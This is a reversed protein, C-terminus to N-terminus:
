KKKKSASSTRGSKINKDAMSKISKWTDKRNNKEPADEDKKAHDFQNLKDRLSKAIERSDKKWLRCARDVAPIFGKSIVEPMNKFVQLFQENDCYLIAEVTTGIHPSGIIRAFNRIVLPGAQPLVADPLYPLLDILHHLYLTIKKISAVPWHNTMYKLCWFTTAPDQVEFFVSLDCLPKEFEYAYPTTFLPFFVTRFTMFANQSLPPELSTYYEYFLRLLSQMQVYREPNDYYAIVKETMFKLIDSRQGVYGNIIVQITEEFAAAEEEVPTDLANVLSKCLQKDLLSTFASHDLMLARMIKHCLNLHDWKSIEYKMSVESYENKPPPKSSTRFIHSQTMQFIINFTDASLSHRYVPDNVLKLIAALTEKKKIFNQDYSENLRAKREIIVYESSDVFTCRAILPMIDQLAHVHPTLPHFIPSFNLDDNNFVTTRQPDSCNETPEPPQNNLPLIIPPLLKSFRRNKNAHLNKQIARHPSLINITREIVPNYLKQVGPRKQVFM